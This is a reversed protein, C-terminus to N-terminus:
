RRGEPPISFVPNKATTALDRARPLPREIGHRRLYESCAGCRGHRRIRAPRECRICNPVPRAKANAIFVARAKDLFRRALGPNKQPWARGKSATDRNNDGCTGLFLHDPRVCPPNDCRHLVWLGDPVPGFHIEWSVRSAKTWGRKGGGRGFKGYGTRDRSATWVWCEGSKDVKPWFREAIPKPKPGTKM